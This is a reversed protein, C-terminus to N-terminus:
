SVADLNSGGRTRGDMWGERGERAVDDLLWAEGGDRPWACDAPVAAEADLAEAGRVRFAEEAVGGARPGARVWGARVQGRLRRRGGGGGAAAPVHRLDGGGHLDGGNARVSRAGM